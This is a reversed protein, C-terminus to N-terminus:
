AVQKNITSVHGMKRLLLTNAKFFCVRTHAILLALQSLNRIQLCLEIGELLEEIKHIRILQLKERISSVATMLTEWDGSNFHEQMADILAPVEETFQKIVAQADTHDHLATIDVVIEGDTLQYVKHNSAHHALMVRKIEAYLHDLTFPKSLYGDMGAEFCKKDEGKLALATMAIIPINSKLQTRILQTTQYGDLEPMHIDMLVIDYQKQTMLDLARNGHEAIDICGAQSRMLLHRVLMQNIVNDEVVLVKKDFLTNDPVANATKM